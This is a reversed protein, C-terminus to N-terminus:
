DMQEHHAKEKLAKLIKQSTMPLERMRVGIAHYIANAIAPAVPIMTAEGIEKAGFPGEPDITEVLISEIPPVDEASPMRYDLFSPNAVIGDKSVIEEMLAFGLGQVVGGDIQGQAYMPNIAKGLDHAAVYNLVKVEGTETDVEVEAVQTGFSYAPTANGYFGTSSTFPVTSPNYTGIGMIPKSMQFLSWRAVESILLGRDPDGRTRVHGGKVELKAADIKLMKSAAEFLQSRANEAALRVANGGFMTARSAYTGLCYAAMDTDARLVSVHEFPIGLVEAAIQALVTNLGQGIDAEGSIVTATGDEHIKVYATSADFTSKRKGSIHIVCAMGIGRKKTTETEEFLPRKRSWGAEDAAKRISETLGCSKINWGHISVDGSKTANKLRLEMPDMSLKEAIVDLLTEVAFHAQPSGFGRLPGCPTKNTYVLYADASVNKYRYLSDSRTAATSLVAPALGAYAGCDMVIKTHKAILTGDNKVGIKLWIVTRPAPRSAVFEEDRTAVFRVPCGSKKALLACVIGAKTPLGSIKGGFAGGLHSQILRVKSEPMGLVRAIVARHEFPVQTTLWVTLKGSADLSAVCATPEIYGQHQVQTAYKDEFIYDSQAFAKGMDGRVIEYHAVINNGKDHLLLANSRMAEEPDFVAPLEEYKVDILSLAEEATDDDVAALAAVEDGVYRVRDLALVHEDQVMEGLTTRPVDMGTLVAKVGDLLEAKSTDIRIIKAHPYPSRLIKACLMGPLRIDSVYQVKGRVTEESDILPVSKGVVLLEPTTESVLSM